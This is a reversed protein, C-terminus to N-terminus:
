FNFNEKAEKEKLDIIRKEYYKINNYDWYKIWKIKIDKKLQELKLKTKKIEEQLEM